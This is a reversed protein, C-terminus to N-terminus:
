EWEYEENQRQEEDDEDPRNKKSPHLRHQGAHAPLLTVPPFPSVLPFPSVPPVLPRAPRPLCDLSIPVVIQAHTAGTESRECIGGKECIM